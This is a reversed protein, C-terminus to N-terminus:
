MMHEPHIHTPMLQLMSMRFAMERRNDVLESYLDTLAADGLNHPGVVRYCSPNFSGFWLQIFLKPQHADDADPDSM